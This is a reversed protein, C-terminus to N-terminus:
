PHSSQRGAFEGEEEAETLLDRPIASAPNEIFSQAQEDSDLLSEVEKRLTEQEKPALDVAAEFLEKVRQWAEASQPM